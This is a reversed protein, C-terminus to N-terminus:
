MQEIVDGFDTGFVGDCFKYFQKCFGRGLMWSGVCTGATVVVKEVPDCKPLVFKNLGVGIAAGLVLECAAEALVCKTEKDM